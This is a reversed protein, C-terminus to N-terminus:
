GTCKNDFRVGDTAISDINPTPAGSAAYGGGYTTVDNIGMDDAMIVIINPPRENPPLSAATPGVIWPVPHNTERPHKIDTLWGTMNTLLYIRNLYATLALAILVGFTFASIKKITM